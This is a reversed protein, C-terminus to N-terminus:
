YFTALEEQPPDTYEITQAHLVPGKQGYIKHAEISIKARVKVWDRTQFPLNSGHLLVLGSYAIDAECCTMIHRGVVITGQKMKKDTAVLAKFEVTKGDYAGMNEVLDRYFYAYDRDEIRIVPADIDFPLPDVIEDQVVRGDAYEYEIEPRRTISRVIKHFDEQKLGDNFRNFIVLDSYQIKDFVLQRMNKNYSLFTPAEFFAIAQAFVFFEPLADLVESFPRMGNCEMVVCGASHKVALETLKDPSLEDPDLYEVAFKKVAFRSPDYEAEGEETVLLLIKEGADFNKDGLVTEQIFSTKGSDLFGLFFYVPIDKM